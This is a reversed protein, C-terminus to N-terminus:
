NVEKATAAATRVANNIIGLVSQSTRTAGTISDLENAAAATGEPVMVFPGKKGRFQEKFWAETIRAGLGPTENQKTFELGTMTEGAPDFGLVANIEGWLGAGITFLVLGQTNGQEDLIRFYLPDSGESERVRRQFLEELAYGDDPAEIDAAYLVARKLFLTENLLVLDETSLYFWSVVSIFVVTIAAMFFIPYIREMFFLNKKKPKEVETSM